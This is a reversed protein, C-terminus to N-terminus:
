STRRAQVEALLFHPGAPIARHLFESQVRCAEDHGGTSVIGERAAARGNRGADAWGAEVKLRDIM